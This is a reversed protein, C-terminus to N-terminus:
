RSVAKGALAPDRYPSSKQYLKLRSALEAKEQESQSLIIAEQQIGIAKAFQGTEAYAAALTSLYGTHMRKTASVAKEALLVANTGDRWNQDPCTALFWAFENLDPATGEELAERYSTNAEARKGQAALNVALYLLSETVREHFQRSFM